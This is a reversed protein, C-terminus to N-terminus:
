QTNLKKKILELLARRDSVIYDRVDTLANNFVDAEQPSLSERYAKGLTPLTARGLKDVWNVVHRGLFQLYKVSLRDGEMSRVDPDEM